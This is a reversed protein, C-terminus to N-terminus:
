VHGTDWANSIDANRINDERGKGQGSLWLCSSTEQAAAHPHTFRIPCEAHHRPCADTINQVRRDGLGWRGRPRWVAKSSHAPFYYMCTCIQLDFSRIPSLGGQRCSSPGAAAALVLRARAPVGRVVRRNMQNMQGVAHVTLRAVVSHLWHCWHPLRCACFPWHCCCALPVMMWVMDHEVGGSSSVSAHMIGVSM